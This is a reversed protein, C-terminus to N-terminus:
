ELHRLGLVTEYARAQIVGPRSHRLMNRQRVGEYCRVMVAHLEAESHHRRTNVAQGSCMSQAACAPRLFASAAAIELRRNRLIDLSRGQRVTFYLNVWPAPLLPVLFLM